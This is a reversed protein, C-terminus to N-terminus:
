VTVAAPRRCAVMPETDIWRSSVGAWPVILRTMSLTTSTLYAVRGAVVLRVIPSARGDIDTPSLILSRGQLATGSPPRGRRRPASATTRIRRGGTDARVAAYVVALVGFRWVTTIATTQDM